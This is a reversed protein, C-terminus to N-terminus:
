SHGFILVNLFLKHTYGRIDTIQWDLTVSRTARFADEALLQWSFLVLGDLRAFPCGSFATAEELPLGCGLVSLATSLPRRDDVHRERSLYPTRDKYHLADFALSPWLILWHM